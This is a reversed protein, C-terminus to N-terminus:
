ICRYGATIDSGPYLIRHIFSHRMMHALKVDGTFSSIIKMLIFDVKLKYGQLSLREMEGLNDM